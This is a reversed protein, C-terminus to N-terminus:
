EQQFDRYRYVRARLSFIVAAAIMLGAFVWFFEAQGLKSQLPALFAVLLNGLTVNFLWFGMIVSKMSKPAQSYAFELGTISVMVESLTMLFYSILQWGVHVENPGGADIARQILAVSVYALAAVGMGMTMRRLPHMKFGLKEILPYLGFTTLPILVMVMFPNLAPVQSEQIAYSPGFAHATIGIGVGLGMGLAFAIGKKAKGDFSLAAAVGVLLGVAIGIGMWGGLGYNLTLNMAKAQQVWTSSHQDFLAWFVSVMLFVSIIRWVAVPGETAASGFRRAAAGYFWHNRLDPAGAEPAGGAGVPSKDLISGDKEMGLRARVAFWTQALFGDDVAIRQRAAFVVVFVGFCAASVIIDLVYGETMEGFFIPWGIVMFLASGALVDLLGLKGSPKAPVHVFERRGWWFCLNAIGMLIGPVGFAWTVSGDYTYVGDVVHMRGRIIPILLTAFASGFNIIFYFANYVKQLLHWNGKGFQDGVNASVCPKIGGAGVAILGLGLYLGHLPDIYVKGLLSIQWAPDEFVALALHGFCYVVSLYLITRYKGLLRDAVIAGILPTAYVGALFLHVTTTAEAQAAEESLGRLGLYLGVVYVYLIAKMGYFSFRECGENGIIYRVGKPFGTLTQDPTTRYQPKAM